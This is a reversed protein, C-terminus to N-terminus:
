RAVLPDWTRRRFNTELYRQRHLPSQRCIERFVCGGYQDCATENMPYHEQDRLTLALNLWVKTDAIYEDIEASSYLIPFRQFRTFTVGLQVGDILAGVPPTPIATSDQALVHAALTYHKIQGNPKFQDLFKYDLPHKSTKYDTVWVQEEYEVIRDIHGCLYTQHGGIIEFPFTFSYEVAPKGTSLYTTQAPDERFQDTYWIVSRVLTEKSRVSDGPPTTEGLLGALRTLRLQALDPSMGLALLKHWTEMCTHFAIGFALAPPRLRLEWGELITYQYYRPCKKLSNLSVTDYAIQFGDIVATSPSTNSTEALAIALEDAPIAAPTDYFSNTLPSYFM